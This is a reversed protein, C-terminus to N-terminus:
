RLRYKKMSWFQNMGRKIINQIFKIASNDTIQDESKYCTRGAREINKLMQIGNIKDLIEFSPKILKM